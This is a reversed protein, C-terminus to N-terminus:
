IIILTDFSASDVYNKPGKKGKAKKEGCDNMNMQHEVLLIANRLLCVPVMQLQQENQERRKQERDAKRRICPMPKM